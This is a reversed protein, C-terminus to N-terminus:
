AVKNRVVARPEVWAPVGRQNAFAAFVVGRDLMEYENPNVRNINLPWNQMYHMAKEFDGFFWRKANAASLGAGGDTSSTLRHYLLQSISYQYRNGYPNKYRRIEAASNTRTETETANIISAVTQELSPVTLIVKPTITIPQNNEQDTMNSFLVLANEIDTWDQLANVQDNIWPSATQYPAYSTGNYVYANYESSGTLGALTDICAIEKRYGIQYGITEARQLVQNTRDFFVTERNVEVALADEHTEPTEVWREGFGVRKHPEGPHRRASKDGITTTGIIKEGNLNTPVTKILKSVVFEPNDYAELIKAEVLGGTTLSFTNVNLFATVDVGPGAEAAAVMGEQAGYMSEFVGMVRNSQAMHRPALNNVWEEGCIAEAVAKLNFEDPELSPDKRIRNGYRDRYYNGHKDALGLLHNMEVAFVASGRAAGHTKRLADLKQRLKLTNIM